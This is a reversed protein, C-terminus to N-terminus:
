PCRESRHAVGVAFFWENLFEVKRDGPNLLVLPLDSTPTTDNDIM